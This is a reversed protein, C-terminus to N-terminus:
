DLSLNEFFEDSFVENLKKKPKGSICEKMITEDLKDILTQLKDAFKDADFEDFEGDIYAM